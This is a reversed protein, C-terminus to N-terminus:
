RACGLRKLHHRVLGLVRAEIPVPEPAIRRPQLALLREIGAVGRAEVLLVRAPRTLEAPKGHVLQMAPPGLQLPQRTHADRRRSPTRRPGLQAARRLEAGGAGVAVEM